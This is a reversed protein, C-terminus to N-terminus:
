DRVMSGFADWLKDLFLATEIHLGYNTCSSRTIGAVVRLNGITPTM